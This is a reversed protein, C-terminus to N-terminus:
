NYRSSSFVRRTDSAECRVFRPPIGDDILRKFLMTDMLGLSKKDLEEQFCHECSLNCIGSLELDLHLPYDTLVEFRGAAHWLERYRRLKDDKNLGHFENRLVIRKM